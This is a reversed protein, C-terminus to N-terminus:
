SEVRSLWGPIGTTWMFMTFWWPVRLAVSCTNGIDKHGPAHHCALVHQLHPLAALMVVVGAPCTLLHRAAPSHAIYRILFVSAATHVKSFTLRIAGAKCPSGVAATRGICLFQLSACVLNRKIPDESTNSMGRYSPSSQVQWSASALRFPHVFVVARSMTILFENPATRGNSLFAKVTVDPGCWMPAPLALERLVSCMRVAASLAM